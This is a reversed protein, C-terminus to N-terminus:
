ESTRAPYLMRGSSSLDYGSLKSALDRFEQQILLNLFSQISPEFFREKSILLDFREWHLPLFDLGLLAAVTQIGPGADARGALIELGLDLHKPMEQAYGQLQSPDLGARELERDLWLRTGTGPQRNVLRIGPKGLDAVAQINYPNDPALILGQQRLCFNVVAPQEQMEQQIHDFNYDQSDKQLLHSAAIHCLGQRLSRLGGMSGLNSFAPTYEPNQAMFLQLSRELLIDNSGAVVFLSPTQLLWNQGPYNITNNEIWQRVLHEPFLWKGTAKSGPLGKEQILHYVQKENIGLLKAVERTSLLRFQM